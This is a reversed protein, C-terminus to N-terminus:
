KFEKENIIECRAGRQITKAAEFTIPKAETWDGSWVFCGGKVMGKFVLGEPTIVIFAEPKPEKKRMDM